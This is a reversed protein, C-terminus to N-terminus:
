KKLLYSAESSIIEKLFNNKLLKPLKLSNLGFKYKYVPRIIYFQEDLITFTTKQVTDLFKKVTLRFSKLRRVEEKDAPRGNKILLNFVPKPLWHLFPFKGLFTGLLHQHGGFPSFYPPFTLYLIGGNRLMLYIQKLAQLPNDLHEIVDRLLIIDFKEKWEEPIPDSLINHKQFEIQLNFVKAIQDGANLRNEAIDTALCYNANKRAFAFLVGGEASGIECISKDKIEIGFSKFYPIIYDEALQYQYKWYYSNYWSLQMEDIKAIIKDKEM